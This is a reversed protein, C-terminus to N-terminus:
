IQRCVADESCCCAGMVQRVDCTLDFLSQLTYGLSGQLHSWSWRFFDDNCLLTPLSILCLVASVLTSVINLALPILTYSIIRFGLYASAKSCSCGREGNNITTKLGNTLVNILHLGPLAEFNDNSRIDFQCLAAVSPVEQGQGISNFGAM